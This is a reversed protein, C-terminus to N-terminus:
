LADKNYPEQSLIKVLPFLFLIQVPLMGIDTHKKM